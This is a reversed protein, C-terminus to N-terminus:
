KHNRKRSIRKKAKERAITPNQNLIQCTDSGYEAARVSESCFSSDQQLMRLALAVASNASNGLVLVKTQKSM